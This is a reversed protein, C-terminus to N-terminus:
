EAATTQLTKLMSIFGPLSSTFRAKYEIAQISSIIHWFIVIVNM